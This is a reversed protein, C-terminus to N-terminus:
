ARLRDTDPDSRCNPGATAILPVDVRLWLERWIKFMEAGNILRGTAVESSAAPKNMSPTTAYWNRGTAAMGRTSKGTMETEAEGGPASGAVTAEERAEGSSRRRPSIEPTVSIVDTLVSPPVEMV